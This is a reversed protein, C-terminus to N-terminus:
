TASAPLFLGYYPLTYTNENWYGGAAIACEGNEDMMFSLMAFGVVPQWFSM